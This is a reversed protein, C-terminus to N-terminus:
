FCLYFKPYNCSFIEIYIFLKYYKIYYIWFLM